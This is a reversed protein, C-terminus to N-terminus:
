KKSRDNIKTIGGIQEILSILFDFDVVALDYEGMQINLLWLNKLASEDRIGNLMKKDIRFSDKTTHKVEVYIEKGQIDGGFNKNGSGPTKRASADIKVAKILAKDEARQWDKKYKSQKFLTFNKCSFCRYSEYYECNKCFEM